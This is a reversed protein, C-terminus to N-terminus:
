KEPSLYIYCLQNDSFEELKLLNIYPDGVIGLLKAFAPETKIGQKKLAIVSQKFSPGFLELLRKEILFHRVGNQQELPQNSVFFEVQWGEVEFSIIQTKYPVSVKGKEIYNGLHGYHKRLFKTLEDPDDVFCAIDIDSTEVDIELPPTGIIHFEHESLVSSLMLNELVRNYDPRM